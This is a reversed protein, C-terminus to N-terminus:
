SLNRVAVELFRDASPFASVGFDLVVAFGGNAVTVPNRTVTSGIQGGGSLADYLKFQMEYTGNAPSGGSMLNGQYTFSTTQAYGACAAALNITLFVITRVPGITKFLRLSRFISM